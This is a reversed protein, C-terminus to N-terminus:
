LWLDRDPVKLRLCFKAALDTNPLQELYPTFVPHVEFGTKFNFGKSNLFDTWYVQNLSFFHYYLYVQDLYFIPIEMTGEPQFEVQRVLYNYLKKSNLQWQSWKFVLKEVTRTSNASSKAEPVEFVMDPLAYKQINKWNEWISINLNNITAKSNNYKKKYLRQQSFIENFYELVRFTKIKQVLLFHIQELFSAFAQQSLDLHNETSSIIRDELFWSFYWDEDVIVMEAPTIRNIIQPFWSPGTKYIIGTAGPATILRYLDNTLEQECIYLIVQIQKQYCINVIEEVDKALGNFMPLIILDVENQSIFGTFDEATFNLNEKHIDFFSIQLGKDLVIQVLSPELLPHVLVPANKNLGCKDVLNAFSVNLSFHCYASWRNTTINSNLVQGIDKVFLNSRIWSKISSGNYWRTPKLLTDFILRSLSTLNNRKQIELSNKTSSSAM